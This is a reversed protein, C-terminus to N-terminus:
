TGPQPVLIRSSPSCLKIAEQVVGVDGSFVEVTLKVRNRRKISLDPLLEFDGEHILVDVVYTSIKEEGSVYWIGKPFFRESTMKMVKNRTHRHLTEPAVRHGVPTLALNEDCYGTLIVPTIDECVVGRDNVLRNGERRFNGKKLSWLVHDWKIRM